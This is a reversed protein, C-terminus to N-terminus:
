GRGRVGNYLWAHIARRMKEIEGIQPEYHPWHSAIVARKLDEDSPKTPQEVAPLCLEELAARMAKVDDVHPSRVWSQAMLFTCAAKYCDFDSFEMRAPETYSQCENLKRQVEDWNATPAHSKMHHVAASMQTFLWKPVAVLEDASM